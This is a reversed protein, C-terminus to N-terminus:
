GIYCEARQWWNDSTVEAVYTGNALNIDTLIIKRDSKNADTSTATADPAAVEKDGKKISVKYSGGPTVNNKESEPFPLVIKNGSNSDGEAQSSGSSFTISSLVMVLVLVLAIMRKSKRM